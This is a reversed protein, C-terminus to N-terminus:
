NGRLATLASLDAGTISADGNVDAEIGSPVSGGGAASAADGDGDFLEAVLRQVDADTLMGDRDLDGPMSPAFTRTPTATGPVSTATPTPTALTSPDCAHLAAVADLDFGANPPATFQPLDGPDAIAGAVDTVRVYSVWALGVTALDFTDGGAADPDLPDIENDPNSVVPIQGALGEFTTANHPFDIFREGDQSVSVFGYEAFLPGTPSGSHFANEFVTFDPGPADCIVPRDFRLVMSGGIGLAVVHFSGQVLGTGRPPGLVIDPLLDAGFGGNIGPTYAHVADAFPDQALARAPLVLASLLFLATIKMGTTSGRVTM